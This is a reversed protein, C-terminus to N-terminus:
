SINVHAHYLANTAMASPFLHWPPSVFITGRCCIRFHHWSLMDTGVSALSFHAFSHTMCFSPPTIGIVPHGVHRHCPFLSRALSLESVTCVTCRMCCMCENWSRRRPTIVKFRAKRPPHETCHLPLLCERSTTSTTNCTEYNNPTVVLFKVDVSDELTSPLPVRATTSTTTRM